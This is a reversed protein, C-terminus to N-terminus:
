RSARARLKRGRGTPASVGEIRMSQLERRVKAVEAFHENAREIVGAITGKCRPCEQESSRLEARCSQQSCVDRTIGRGIAWGATACLVYLLEGVVGGRMVMAGFGVLVGVLTGVIVRNRRLRFVPRPDGEFEPTRHKPGENADDWAHGCKHCRLRKRGLCQAVAILLLLPLFGLLTLLVTVDHASSVVTFFRPREYFSYELECRPCRVADAHDENPPAERYGLAAGQEDPRELIETARAADAPQVLLSVGGSSGHLAPNYHMPEEVRADIGEAHLRVRALEADVSSPYTAVLASLRPM